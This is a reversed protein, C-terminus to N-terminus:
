YVGSAGGGPVIAPAGGSGPTILDPVVGPASVSPAGAGIASADGFLKGTATHLARQIDDWNLFQYLYYGGALIAATLIIKGKNRWIMGPLAAATEKVKRVGKSLWSEHARTMASVKLLHDSLADPNPFYKAVEPDRSLEEALQRRAAVMEVETKAKAQLTPLSSAANVIKKEVAQSPLNPRRDASKEPPM